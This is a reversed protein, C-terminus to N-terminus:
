SANCYSLALQPYPCSLAVKGEDVLQAKPQAIELHANAAALKAEVAARAEQEDALANLLGAVKRPNQLMQALTDPTMYAGHNDISVLVEDFVWSEFREAGPLKSRTILRYVDGKPIISINQRGQATPILTKRVWRCHTRVAEQPNAYSGIM